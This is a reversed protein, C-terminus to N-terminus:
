FQGTKLLVLTCAEVPLIGRERAQLELEPNEAGPNFIIRRPRAAWLAEALKTSVSANVYLTVTDVPEPVDGLSAYVPRGELEKLTPHVAFARHGKEELLKVAKYSYKEPDASAGIVATNM